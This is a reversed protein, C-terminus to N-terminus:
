IKPSYIAYAHHPIYKVSNTNPTQICAPDENKICKKNTQGGKGELHKMSMKCVCTRPKLQSGCVCTVHMKSALSWLSTYKVYEDLAADNNAIPNTTNYDSSLRQM